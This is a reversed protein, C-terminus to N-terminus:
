GQVTLNRLDVVAGAGPQYEFFTWAPLPSTDILKRGAPDEHRRAQDAAAVSPHQDATIRTVAFLPGQALGASTQRAMGETQDQGLSLVECDIPGPTCVGPGNVVTGPQVAFLVRHGGQLVGLEVLMPSQDSPLVSLRELPDLTDIGGSPNTIALAVDYSQTSTLESPSRTPTANAPTIPNPAPATGASSSPVTSGSSPSGAAGTSVAPAARGATAASSTAVSATTTARSTSSPSKGGAQQRFPDRARGTLRSQAPTTQVNLAPLSSGSAPSPTPQPVAAVPTPSSSKALVVPVAVIAVLLAIAAPWLRKERLEKLAGRLIKTIVSFDLDINM